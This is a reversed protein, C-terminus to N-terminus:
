QDLNNVIQDVAVALMIVIPSHGYEEPEEVVVTIHVEAVALHVQVVEVALVL